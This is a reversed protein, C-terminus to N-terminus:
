PCLTCEEFNKYVLATTAFDILDLTDWDTGGDLRTKGSVVSGNQGALYVYDEGSQGQVVFNGMIEIPGNANLIFNDNGKNGKLRVDGEVIVKGQPFEVSIGLADRDSDGTAIFDGHILLFAAEIDLEAQVGIMFGGGQAKIDKHVTLSTSTSHEVVGSSVWLNGYDNAGPGFSVGIGSIIWDALHTSIVVRDDGENTM